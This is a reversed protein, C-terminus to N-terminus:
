RGAGRHHPTHDHPDPARTRRAHPATRRGTTIAAVTGAAALLFALLWSGDRVTRAVPEVHLVEGAGPDNALTVPVIAPSTALHDATPTVDTPTTDTPPADGTLDTPPADTPPTDAPPTDAPPTDGTPDDTTPLAGSSREGDDEHPQSRADDDGVEAVESPSETASAPEQPEATTRESDDRSGCFTLSRVDQVTGTTMPPLERTEGNAGTALIRTVTTAPDAEWALLQWGDVERQLAQATIAVARGDGVVADRRFTVLLDACGHGESSTGLETDGDAEAHQQTSATPAAAAATTGVLLVALAVTGTASAATTPRSRPLLRM